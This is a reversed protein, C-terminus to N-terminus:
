RLFGTSSNGEKERLKSKLYIGVTRLFDQNCADVKADRLVGAVQLSCQWLAMQTGDSECLSVQESKSSCLFLQLFEQVALKSPCLGRAWTFNRLCRLFIFMISWHRVSRNGQSVRGASISKKKIKRTM